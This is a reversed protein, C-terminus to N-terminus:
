TSVIVKDAGEGQADLEEEVTEDAKQSEPADVPILFGTLYWRSPTHPLVEAPNGVDADPGLLDLKLARVLQERVEFSTM